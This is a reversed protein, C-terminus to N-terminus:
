YKKDDAQNGVSNMRSKMFKALIIANTKDKGRATPHIDDVYNVKSSALEGDERIRMVRPLSPDWTFSTPINLIVKKYAFPSSEDSPPKKVWEIIRQQGMGAIYPSCRGAFHLASFRAFWHREVSGDNRTDIMRVGCYPRDEYHSAYNNCQQGVDIDLQWSKNFSAADQSYDQDPSGMKLYSKVTYFLWKVVIEELDGFDGLIFSPAWLCTNHGNAKSDWVVRVDTDSKPVTFRPIALRIIGNELYLNFRLRFIKERTHDQTETPINRMRGQPLVTGPIQWCKVGDRFDAHWEGPLWWYFIRSGRVWKFYRCAKIRRIADEVAM